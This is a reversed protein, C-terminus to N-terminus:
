RRGSVASRPRPEGRLRAHAERRRLYSTQAIAGAFLAFTLAGLVRIPVTHDARASTPTGPVPGAADSVSFAAVFADSGSGQRSARFPRATPFDNGDTLGVVHAAGLGDIAVGTARDDGQGGLYTSFLAANGTPGLKFVFADGTGRRDPQAPHAVHFNPSTTSGAVFADGARDLAIAAGQDAGGGGVYTAYTLSAGQPAVKVVFADTDGASRSQFAGVTPFDSSKTTGTVFASGEADVAIGAGQDADGGGLFSSYALGTGAPLLKAVFAHPASGARGAGGLSTQFPQVLPFDPSRTDGTVYASGSSDVAIAAGHDDGAGGLRTSYAMTGSAALKTVFVDVDDARPTGTQLPNLTPFNSSSTFGTVYANGAPDLAIGRGEDGGGGGILASWEIAAGGAAIKAVFADAPGGGFNAQPAGARPFDSSEARGTVYVAGGPGVAIGYGTDNGRGGLYTSWEAGTGTPNLKTVFVDGKAEGLRGPDVALAGQLPNATPFDNSLTSGTVYTSGARDVAIAYGADAGSGGVYTSAVLTPDIVLPLTPDYAGVRFGVRAPGLLSFAGAVDRRAGGVLQYLVPKALRVAAPAAGSGMTLVLDGHRDIALARQGQVDIAVMGPDAGPAVVVDHELRRQDGHWVMDIGPWVGHAEVSGYTPVAYRWGAPDDGILRNVTGPLPHLGSLAPDPGAQARAPALRVTTGDTRGGVRIEAVSGSLRVSYGPGQSVFTGDAGPEFVVPLSGLVDRVESRAPPRTAPALPHWLALAAGLSALTVATANFLRTFPLGSM